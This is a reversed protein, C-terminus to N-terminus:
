ALGLHRLVEAPPAEWRALATNGVYGIDAMGEHTTYFATATLDRMKAFFRAAMRHEPAARRIWCIDDCIATKEADTLDRFRRGEGFRTESERDLWVLGGRVLVLDARQGDYPASVWEDIYDVAGVASAAPSVEDAPIIVDCLVALGAREDESLVLDWHRRPAILDPDWPTGAALPNGVGPSTAAAADTTGAAGGAAATGGSTSGPEACGGVA